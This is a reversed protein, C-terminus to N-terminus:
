KSVLKEIVGGGLKRPGGPRNTSPSALVRVFVVPWLVVRVSRVDRKRGYEESVPRPKTSPSAPVTLWLGGGGGGPGLWLIPGAM